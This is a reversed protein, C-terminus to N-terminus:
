SNAKKKLGEWWELRESITKEYGRQTPDYWKAGRLPEPLYEQGISLAEEEAHDYRYGAGYGLKKM